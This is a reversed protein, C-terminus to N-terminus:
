RGGESSQPSRSASGTPKIQEDWAESLAQLQLNSSMSLKTPQCISHIVYSMESCFGLCAIHPDTHCGPGFSALLFTCTLKTGRHGPSASHGAQRALTYAPRKGSLWYFGPLCKGRPRRLRQVDRQRCLIQRRQRRTVDQKMFNWFDRRWTTRLLIRNLLWIQFTVFTSSMQIRQCNNTPHGQALWRFERPKLTRM